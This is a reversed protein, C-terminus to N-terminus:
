TVDVRLTLAPNTVNLTVPGPTAPVTLDFSISRPAVTVSSVPTGTATVDTVGPTFAAGYITVNVSGATRPVSAPYVWPTSIEPQLVGRGLADQFTPDAIKYALFTGTVPDYARLEDIGIAGGIEAPTAIHITM